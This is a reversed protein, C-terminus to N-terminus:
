NSRQYHFIQQYSFSSSPLLLIFHRPSERVRSPQCRPRDTRSKQFAALTQPRARSVQVRPPSLLNEGRTREVHDRMKSVRCFCGMREEYSKSEDGICIPCQTKALVLPFPELDPSGEKGSAPIPPRSPTPATSASRPPPLAGAHSRCVPDFAANGRLQTFSFGGSPSNDGSCRSVCCFDFIL